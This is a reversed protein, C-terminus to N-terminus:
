RGDPGGQPRRSPGEISRGLADLVAERTVGRRNAGEGDATQGWVQATSVGYPRLANAPDTPTWGDFRDPDREALRAVITESWLRAEGAGFVDLVQDLLRPAPSETIPEEGAAVGSLTGARIRLDMGRECIRQLTPLDM